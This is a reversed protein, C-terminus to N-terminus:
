EARLSYAGYLIAMQPRDQHVVNKWAINYVARNEPFLKQVYFTNQYERCAKDLINRM